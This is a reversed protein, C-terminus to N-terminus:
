IGLSGARIPRVWRRSTVFILATRVDNLIGALAKARPSHRNRGPKTRPWKRSGAQGSEQPDAFHESSSLARVCVTASLIRKSHVDAEMYDSVQRAQDEV